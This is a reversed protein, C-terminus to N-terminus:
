QSTVSLCCPCLSCVSLGVSRCVIVTFHCQSLLSLSFLGVSLGVSQCVILCVVTITGCASPSISLRRSDSLYQDVLVYHNKHALLWERGCQEPYVHNMSAVIKSSSVAFSVQRIHGHSTGASIQVAFLITSDFVFTLVQLHPQPVPSSAHLAATGPLEGISHAGAPVRNKREHISHSKTRNPTRGQVRPDYAALGRGAPTQRHVM